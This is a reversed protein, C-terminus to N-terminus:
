LCLLYAARAAFVNGTLVKAALQQRFRFGPFFTALSFPSFPTSKRKAKSRILVSCSMLDKSDPEQKANQLKGTAKRLVRDDPSPPM